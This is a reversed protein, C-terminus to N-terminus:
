HTLEHWLDGQGKKNKIKDVRAEQEMFALHLM